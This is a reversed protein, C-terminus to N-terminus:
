ISSSSLTRFTRSLGEIVDSALLDVKSRGNQVLEDATHGHIVCGNSLADLMDDTQMMMSLLIGSLV